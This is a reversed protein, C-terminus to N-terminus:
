YVGQLQFFSIFDPNLKFSSMMATHFITLSLLDSNMKVGGRTRM